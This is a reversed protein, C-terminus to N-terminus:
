HHRHRQRRRRRLRSLIEQWGLYSVVCLALAAFIWAVFIFFINLGGGM